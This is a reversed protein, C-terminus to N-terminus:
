EGSTTEKDSTKEVEIAMDPCHQACLGCATCHGLEGLVRDEIKLNEVPCMRVCINCLKCLKHNIHVKGKPKSRKKPRNSKGEETKEQKSLNTGQPILHNIEILPNRFQYPRALDHGV